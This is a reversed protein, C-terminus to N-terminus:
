PCPVNYVALLAGLDAQDTDGDGDIDGGADNGYAALLVGLDSQDRQGDGNLDGPCDSVGLDIEFAFPLLTGATNAATSTGSMSLTTGSTVTYRGITYLGEPHVPVDFWIASMSNNTIDPGSAFGPVTFEPASFFSDFELGPFVTWLATQPTSGDIPHQYFNGDVSITGDTSTWDDGYTTEVQLDYTTAGELTPDDAIAEPTIPVEVYNHICTEVFPYGTRDANFVEQNGPGPVQAFAVFSVDEPRTQSTSHLTFTREVTLTEGPNLTVSGMNYGQMVCYNVKPATGPHKWLTEVLNVEMDAATGDADMTLVATVLYEFTGTPVAIVEVDVSTPVTMRWNYDGTYTAYASPTSSAGVRDRIGDVVVHPIGGVSYKSSRVNGWATNYPPDSVHIQLNVIDYGEDLMQSLATGSYTCYGCWTATFQEFLVTREAAQAPTLCAGGVALCALAAMRSFRSAGNM